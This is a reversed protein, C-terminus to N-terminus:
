ACRPGPRSRTRAAPSSSRSSTTRPPARSSRSPRRREGRRHRRLAGLLWAATANITMSTNMEGLPIGDMLTTCTARTPSRARRGQRGRRPGARPRRRLRDPHAPRLRDVPRDPGQGPQRPLARQVAAATSHGAYTRMMWPRDPEPLRHDAMTPFSVALARARGSRAEVARARRARGGSGRGRGARAARRRCNTPWPSKASVPSSNRTGSRSSAAQCGWSRTSSTPQPM